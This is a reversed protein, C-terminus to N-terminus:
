QGATHLRYSWWCPLHSIATIPDVVTYRVTYRVGSKKRCRADSLLVSLVQSFGLDSPLPCVLHGADCDGRYADAEGDPLYVLRGDRLDSAYLQRPDRAAGFRAEPL